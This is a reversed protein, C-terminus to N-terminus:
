RRANAVKHAIVLEGVSILGAFFSELGGTAWIADGFTSKRINNEYQEATIPIGTTRTSVKASAEMLEDWTVGKLQDEMAEYIKYVKIDYLDSMTDIIDFPRVVGIVKENDDIIPLNILKFESTDTVVTKAPEDKHVVKIEDITHMIESMSKKGERLGKTIDLSTAWGQLKMSDDLIPLTFRKTEEMKISVDVITDDKSVYVFDKEMMQCAKM